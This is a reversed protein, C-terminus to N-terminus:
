IKMQEPAAPINQLVIDFWREAARQLEQKLIHYPLAEVAENMRRRVKDPPVGSWLDDSIQGLIHHFGDGYASTLEVHPIKGAM